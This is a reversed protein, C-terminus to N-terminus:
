AAVSLELETRLALNRLDLLHQEISQEAQNKPIQLSAQLNTVSISKVISVISVSGCNRCIRAGVSATTATAISIRIPSDIPIIFM